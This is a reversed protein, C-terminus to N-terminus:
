PAARRSLFYRRVLAKLDPELDLHGLPGTSGSRPGRSTATVTGAEEAQPEIREQTIKTPGPGPRGKIRDPIPVGLVLSAVGRSKKQESPGGRGNADPNPRNGFGIQLDRSVPPRRDRLSPQVGGRNEQSEEDDEAEEDDDIEQDDSETVQDRSKWDSATPNKNSGKSSGKGATAGSEEDEPKEEPAPEDAQAKAKKKPAPKAQSDPDGPESTQGQASPASRSESGASSSLAGSSRGAGTKGASEKVSESIDPSADAREPIAAGQRTKSLAELAKPEPLEPVAPAPAREEILPEALEGAAAVLAENATEARYRAQMEWTGVWLSGLVFVVGAAAWLASARGWQVQAPDHQLAVTKAAETRTAADEIAAREFGTLLPRRVFDDAAQLRGELQLQGDVKGMAHGRGIAIRRAERSAIWGFLVPLGVATLVVLIAPALRPDGGQNWYAVQTLFYFLPVLAILPLSARLIRKFERGSYAKSIDASAREAIVDLDRRFLPDEGGNASGEPFEDMM